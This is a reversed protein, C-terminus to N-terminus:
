FAMKRDVSLTLLLKKANKASDEAGEIEEEKQVGGIELGPLDLIKAFYIYKYHPNEAAITYLPQQEYIPNLRNLVVKQKSMLKHLDLIFIEGVKGTVM